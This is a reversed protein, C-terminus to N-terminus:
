LEDTLAVGIDSIKSGSAHVDDVSRNMVAARAALGSSLAIATDEASSSSEIRPVSDAPAFAYTRLRACASSM